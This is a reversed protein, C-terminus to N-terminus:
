KQWVGEVLILDFFASVGDDFKQINSVEVEKIFDSANNFAVIQRALSILNRSTAMLRVSEGASASFDGFYVDPVTHVELLNFFNTWYIHNNLVKKVTTAKNTLIVIADRNELFPTSQAELLVIERKLHEVQSELKSFHFNGYLRSIFFIVLLVIVAVILFLLRSRVVRSIIMTQRPMLSVGFGRSIEEERKTEKNKKADPREERKDKKVEIEEERKTEKDRKISSDKPPTPPQNKKIKKRKKFIFDWPKAHSVKVKKDKKFPEDKAPTTMIIDEAKKKEEEAVAFGKDEQKGRKMEEPLLNVM